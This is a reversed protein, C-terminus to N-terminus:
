IVYDNGGSATNILDQLTFADAAENVVKNFSKWFPLTLIGVKSSYISEEDSIDPIPALDGETARLIMGVTYEEPKKTLKYGGQPGRISKVLKNKNLLSIIQELYKESLGQRQAIDKIKVPVGDDHYCLDLMLNLAYRGKTSITM